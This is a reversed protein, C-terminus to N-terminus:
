PAPRSLAATADAAFQRSASLAADRADVRDIWPQVAARDAAPLTLLERRSEIIDNRRAAAAVRLIVAGRDDGSTADTREIRVLKAAGAQLRDLLGSGITAAEPAPALKPLLALLDRSLAAANPVGTSAFVDLPKLINADAALLKAATLAGAYPESQRVSNDLLSAAVVRRLLRDDAPKANQRAAETKLAGTAREVQGLRETIPALDVAAVAERPASKLDNVAAQARESQSKATALDSRLLAVSKDLADLRAALAPDTAATAPMPASPRTEVRAVRAALAEVAASDTQSVPETMSTGPWGALWAGGVVLVAAIAGTAASLLWSGSRVPHPTSAAAAVPESDPTPEVAPTPNVEPAESTVVVPEEPAVPADGPEAVTERSIETATLEITPPARKLRGLDPAGTESDDVM